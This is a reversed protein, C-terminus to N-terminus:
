NINKTEFIHSLKSKVIVKSDFNNKVKTAGNEGIEMAQQFNEKIWFLTSIISNVDAEVELYDVGSELSFRDNRPNTSVLVCGTSM